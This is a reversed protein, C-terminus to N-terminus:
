TTPKKPSLGPIYRDNNTITKKNSSQAKNNMNRAEIGQKEFKADTFSRSGNHSSFSHRNADKTGWTKRATGQNIKPPCFITASFALCLLSISLLRIKEM